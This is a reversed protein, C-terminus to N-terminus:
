VFEKLQVKLLQKSQFIRSKVTGLPINLKEAIERYKFGSIHLILSEKQESPLLELVQLIETTDSSSDVSTERLSTLLIPNAVTDCYARERMMKRYQNTFLNRMITHCWASFNTGPTYLEENNLVALSTEQLLDRAADGNETLRYAFQYLKGQIDLLNNTFTSSNM